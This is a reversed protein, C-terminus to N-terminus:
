INDNRITEIINQKNIKNLSYKMTLAVIIFVFVISIIIPVFPFSYAMEQAGVIKAYILYSLLLGIPIGIILSKTGYLISELRIMKNFENNTMGISKLMAFEKSRLAMNTTITNFINTVGILTIVTIFGYLFISIILMMAKNEKVYENYNTVDIEDSINKIDRELKDPNKSNIYLASTNADTLKYESSVVLIASEYQLGMPREETRKIIKIGNITDGENVNLYNTLKRQEGSFYTIKDILVAENGKLDMGIKKTYEKYAHDEPVVILVSMDIYETEDESRLDKSLYQEANINIRESQWYSYDQINDLKLIEEYREDETYVALNYPLQEYYTSGMNFGYQLISSLSIFIVISVVLSIVTTRYKKKNRKLNKLSIQGGINFIKKFLPSIKLKKNSIKIDQNSRIADIPSIKSAKKAPIICSLYITITAMIIGIIIAWTPMSFAFEINNLYDGIIFNILWCLVFVAVAAMIIGLPIAIIGLIFGEYLVNKKIQKPTAGISALMGYQKYKETVSISFSNRIVFVSSFVIIGIVIAAVSYLMENMRENKALGSYRLVDSNYEVRYENDKNIEDTVKYTNLVNKYKVYLNVNESTKDLKSIITYGPASYSEDSYNLREMIGVITYEKEFQKQIHEPEDLLMISNDLEEGTSDIIRQGIDLKIKDGIKYNVEGDSIIHESIVAENSNQPLNGKILKLGLNELATQDYEKIYLYPKFLNKSNELYAFGINRTLMYSKIEKNSIIEDKQNKTVNEFRAHYDGYTKIADNLLTQQFSSVLGATAVILATSLAIGIITVITRKKNLKLSRGIFKNLINM